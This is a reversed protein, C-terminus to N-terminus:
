PNIIFIKGLPIEVERYSVADTDRNGFGSYFPLVDTPFLRM